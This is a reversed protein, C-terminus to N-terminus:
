KIKAALFEAGAKTFHIGDFSIIKGEETSLKKYGDDDIFVQM